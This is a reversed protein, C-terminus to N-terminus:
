KPWGLWLGVGFSIAVVSLFVLKYWWPTRPRNIREADKDYGTTPM